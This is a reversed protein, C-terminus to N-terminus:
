QFTSIATFLGDIFGGSRKAHDCLARRMNHKPLQDFPLRVQVQEGALWGHCYSVDWAPHGPDSVLRLRAITLGPQTWPVIQLREEQHYAIPSELPAIEVHTATV